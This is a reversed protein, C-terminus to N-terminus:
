QFLNEIRNKGSVEDSGKEQEYDKNINENSESAKDKVSNDIGSNDESEDVVEFEYNEAKDSKLEIRYRGTEEPSFIFIDKGGQKSFVKSPSFIKIQYNDKNRLDIKVKEGLYYKEKLIVAMSTSVFFLSIIFVIIILSVVSIKVMSKKNIKTISM